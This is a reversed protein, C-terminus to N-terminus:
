KSGAVQKVVALGAGVAYALLVPAAWPGANHKARGEGTAGQLTLEYPDTFTHGEAALVELGEGAYSVLPSVEVGEDCDVVAGQNEVWRCCLM